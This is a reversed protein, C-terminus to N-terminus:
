FDLQLSVTAAAALVVVVFFDTAAVFRPWLDFCDMFYGEPPFCLAFASSSILSHNRGVCTPSCWSM